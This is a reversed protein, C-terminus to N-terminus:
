KISCTDSMTLPIKHITVKDNSDYAYISLELDGDFDLCINSNVQMNFNDLYDDLTIAEKSDSHIKKDVGNKSIYLTSEIKKYVTEDKSDGCYKLDSIYISTKSANYAISGKIEFESCTTDITGFHFNTNSKIFIIFGSIIVIFILSIIILFKSFKKNTKNTKQYNDGLLEDLKYNYKDCIDKMISIDPLNKGNEWKSVAQYTVGLIDALERQTLNNDIRIKKIKKGIEEQNM